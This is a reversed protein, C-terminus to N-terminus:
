RTVKRNKIQHPEIFFIFSFIFFCIINIFVFPWSSFVSLNIFSQSNFIPAVAMLNVLHSASLFLYILWLNKDKNLTLVMLPFLSYLYREHMRTPLMFFAFILFAATLYIMETSPNKLLNKIAFFYAFFFLAFGVLFYPILGLFKASDLSVFPVYLWWFNFANVSLFPYEKSLSFPIKAVQFFKGALVFPLCIILATLLALGINKLLHTFKEKQWNLFFLLPFFIISQLKFLFAITLFIWAWSFKNKTTFFLALLIFFTHISDIQGWYASNYIIGPNFLYFTLILFALWFKLKMQKRLLWFILLGTLLDFIIAPSKLLFYLSYTNLEFIPSFFKQYISGILGLIYLYPPFYNPLMIEPNVRLEYANLIGFHNISRAWEQWFNIDPWYGPYSVLYFRIVLALFFVAFILLFRIRRQAFIQSIKKTMPLLELFRVM